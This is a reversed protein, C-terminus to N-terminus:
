DSGEFFFFNICLWRLSAKVLVVAGMYNVDVNRRLLSLDQEWFFGPTATRAAHVLHDTVRGHFENAAAVAKLMQSEDVADAEVVFVSAAEVGAAKQELGRM